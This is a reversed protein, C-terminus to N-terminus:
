ASAEFRAVVATINDRGGQQNAEALLRECAARPNAEAKLIAAIGDDTLMDTLGDSCLLMIDGPELDHMQVDVKVGAKGGGLVNTVVHRYRNQCVEEPRIVGQRALEAAVTHDETLRQLHGAHFLYCRSDGAHFVFIKRGSVLTMTLTTGMGAFEPHHAAEEFIRADAECLAAQLDKLIVEEDAGQRNSFRRLLHLVFAEVTTISLASAVEGARHGGMGDAVLFLHARNRGQQTDPQHLSTQRISLIRALEAILFHDENTDRVRGRDTLGYSEAGLRSTPQAAPLKVTSGPADASATTV